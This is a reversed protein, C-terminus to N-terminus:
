YALYFFILEINEKERTSDLLSFFVKKQQPEHLKKTNTQKLTCVQDWCRIKDM